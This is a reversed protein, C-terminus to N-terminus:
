IYKLYLLAIKRMHIQITIKLLWYWIKYVLLVIYYKFRIFLSICYQTTIMYTLCKSCLM